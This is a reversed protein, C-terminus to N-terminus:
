SQYLALATSPTLSQRPFWRRESDQVPSGDIKEWSALPRPSADHMADDDDVPMFM